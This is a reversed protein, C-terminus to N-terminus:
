VRQKSGSRADRFVASLMLVRQWFMDALFPASGTVQGCVCVCVCNWKNPAQRTNGTAM